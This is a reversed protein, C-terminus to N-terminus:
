EAELREILDAQLKEARRLAERQHNGSVPPRAELTGEQHKRRAPGAAQSDPQRTSPHHEANGHVTAGETTAALLRPNRGHSVRLQHVPRCTVSVRPRALRRQRERLSAARTSPSRKNVRTLAAASRTHPNFVAGTD